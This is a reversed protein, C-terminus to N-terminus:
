RLDTIIYNKGLKKTDLTFSSIDAEDKLTFDKLTITVTSGDGSTIIAGVPVKAATLFFSVEKIGTDVAPTLIAESVSKGNFSSSKTKNFKFAKDVAGVLLAPNAEIDLGDGVTEIYCEEAETDLTWRVKGDCYVELGDGKMTFSDGQLMVTGSGNLPVQGGLSYSYAFTACKGELTSVFESVINQGHACLCMASLFALVIFRKVM